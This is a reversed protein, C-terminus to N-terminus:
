GGLLGGLGPLGFGGLIDNLNMTETPEKFTFSKIEKVKWEGKLPLSLIGPLSQDNLTLAFNFKLAYESKKAKIEINGTVKMMGLLDINVTYTDGKEKLISILIPEPLNPNEFNMWFGESSFWYEGRLYEEKVRIEMSDVVLAVKDKDIIVLYAQLSSIDIDQSLNIEEIIEDEGEEDIAPLVTQQELEKMFFDMDALLEKLKEPAIDVQYANYGRFQEFKGQYKQYGREILIDQYKQNLQQIRDQYQNLLVNMKNSDQIDMQIWKGKFGEIMASIM